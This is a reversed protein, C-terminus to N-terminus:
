PDKFPCHWSIKSKQNKEHILKGWAGSYVKLATEFKKLFNEFINAAWPQGGTDVVGSAFKGGTDVVGTTCRSRRIDQRIKLFNLVVRITYEPAQPFSIWSFFGFTSFRM